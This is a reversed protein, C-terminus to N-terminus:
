HARARVGSGGVHLKRDPSAPHGAARPGHRHHSSDEHSRQLAIEVLRIALAAYDMGAARAAKSFGADPNLDCNPNVDIVFPVGEPSLRLDVRGYDRCELASFAALATEVLRTQTEEDLACRGSASDRYEASGEDWKAAYSVINPRGEFAQGFHIESLPLAERPANGLLPVYIERGPIFGEILAPQHLRELVQLVARELAPRDTVVSDFGIGVSADERVPKVILPFALNVAALQSPERVVAYPPTSVGRASLLEKTKDKHLALGLGLAGSGTYPIGLADLVAPMAMEGRSDAGLSECLNIAVEPRRKALRTISDPFDKGFPVLEARLGKSLLAEALARGVRAVDERAERGPDDELLDSDANLLIAVNM